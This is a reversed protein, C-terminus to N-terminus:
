QISERREKEFLIVLFVFECVYVCMYIYIYAVVGGDGSGAFSLLLLWGFLLLLFCYDKLGDM